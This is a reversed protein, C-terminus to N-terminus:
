RYTRPAPGSRREGRIPLPVPRASRERGHRAPLVELGRELRRLEEDEDAQAEGDHGGRGADDAGALAPGVLARDGPFHEEVDGARELHHEVRRERQQEDPGGPLEAQAGAVPLAPDGVGADGVPPPEPPPGLVVAAAHVHLGQQAVAGSAQHVAEDVEREEDEERHRRHELDVVLQWGRGLEEVAGGVLGVLEDAVGGPDQEQDAHAPGDDAAVDLPRVPQPDLGAGLVREDQARQERDAQGAQGHLDDPDCEDSARGELLPTVDAVGDGPHEAVDPRSRQLGGM